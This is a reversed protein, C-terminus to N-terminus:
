FSYNAFFRVMNGDDYMDSYIVDLTHHKNITLSVLYDTENEGKDFAVHTVGMSLDGFQYTAGYLRAEQDQSDEITHDESSTFFPGGGFGNSVIGKVRNYAFNIALNDIKGGVAVGYARNSNEQDTYQLGMSFTDAEYGFEAYNFDADDMNYHWVELSSKEIGEYIVGGVLIPDKSSQLDSFKEAVDADIGAYKDLLAVILTTDSLDQNVLSYGEFSNPIMGIDDSDAYPTDLLQRGAKFLSKGMAVKLYSEGVISYGQNSSGLFMGEDRKGFLPNTTFFSGVLSIGNLPKTELTVRGGLAVTTAKDGQSDETQIAGFRLEGRHDIKEIAEALPSQALLSSSLLITSVFYQYPM